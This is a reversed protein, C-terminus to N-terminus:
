GPIYGNAQSSIALTTSLSSGCADSTRTVLVVNLGNVAVGICVGWLGCFTRTARREGPVLFQALPLVTLPAIAMTIGAFGSTVFQQGWSLLTFPLANSFIAMGLSHLWIRRGIPTKTEPLGVRLSFALTVLVVAALSLRIAVVWLPGFGTLAVTVSPFSAGWIMGLFVLLMWNLPRHNQRNEPM